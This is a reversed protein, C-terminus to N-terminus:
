GTVYEGCRPCVYGDIRIACGGDKPCERAPHAIALFGDSNVSAAARPTRLYELMDGHTVSKGKVRTRQTLGESTLIEDHTKPTGTLPTINM